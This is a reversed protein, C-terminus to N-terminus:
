DETHDRTDDDRPERPPWNLLVPTGHDRASRVSSKHEARVQSGQENGEGLLYGFGEEDDEFHADTPQAADLLTPTDSTQDAITPEVPLGLNAFQEEAAPWLSPFNLSIPMDHQEDRSQTPPEDKPILTGDDLLIMESFHGRVSTKFVGSLNANMNTNPQQSQSEEITPSTLTSSSVEQALSELVHPPKARRKPLFPISAQANKLGNRVLGRDVNLLTTKMAQVLDTFPIKVTDPNLVFCIDLDCRFDANALNRLLRRSENDKRFAELAEKFAAKARQKFRGRIFGHMKGRLPAEVEKSVVFIARPLGDVRNSDYVAQLALASITRFPTTPWRKRAYLFARLINSGSEHPCVPATLPKIPRIRAM